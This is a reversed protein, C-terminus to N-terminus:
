PLFRRSTQKHQQEEKVNASHINAPPHGPCTGSAIPWRHAHRIIALSHEFQKTFKTDNQQLPEDHLSM